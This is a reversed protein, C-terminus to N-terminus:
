CLLKLIRLKKIEMMKCIILALLTTGLWKAVIIFFSKEEIGIYRALINVFAFVGIHIMYIITSLRRILVALNNSIGIKLNKMLLVVCVAMVATGIYMNQRMPNGITLLVANEVCTILVGIIIGAVSITVTKRTEPIRSDWYDLYYGVSYFFVGYFLGNRTTLFIKRYYHLLCNVLPIKQFIGSYSDGTLGILYLMLTCGLILRIDNKLLKKLLGLFIIAFALSPLYWLHWYSGDFLFHQIYNGIQDHLSERNDIMWLPLYILSWILYLKIIRVVQQREAKDGKRKEGANM